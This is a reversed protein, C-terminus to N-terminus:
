TKRVVCTEGDHTLIVCNEAYTVSPPVVLMAPCASSGSSNQYTYESAWADEQDGEADEVDNDEDEEPADPDM